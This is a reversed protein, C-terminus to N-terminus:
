RRERRISRRGGWPGGGARGWGQEESRQIKGRGSGRQEKRNGGGGGREVGKGRMESENKVVGVGRGGRERGSLSAIRRDPMASSTASFIKSSKEWARAQKQTRMHACVSFITSIKEWASMSIRSRTRAHVRQRVDLSARTLKRRMVTFKSLALGGGGGIDGAAGAEKSKWGRKARGDEGIDGV